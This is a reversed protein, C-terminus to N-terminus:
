SLFKKQLNHVSDIDRLFIKNVKNLSYKIMKSELFTFSNGCGVGVIYVPVKRFRSSIVWLFLATPFHPNSLILQGGGIIVKDVDIFARQVRSYNLIFWKLAILAKIKSLYGLFSIGRSSKTPNKLKVGTKVVSSFTAKKTKFGLSAVKDELSRAIALDGLNDSECENVLLIRKM